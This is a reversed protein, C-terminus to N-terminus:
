SQQNKREKRSLSFCHLLKESYMKLAIRLFIVSHDDSRSLMFINPYHVVKVCLSGWLQRFEKILRYFIKLIRIHVSCYQKVTTTINRIKKYRDKMPFYVYNPLLGSISNQRQKFDHDSAWAAFALKM